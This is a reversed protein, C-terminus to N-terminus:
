NPYVNEFLFYAFIACARFYLSRSQINFKIEWPNDKPFPTLRCKWDLFKFTICRVSTIRADVPSLFKFPASNYRVFNPFTGPYNLCVRPPRASMIVTLARNVPIIEHYTDRCPYNWLARRADYIQFIRTVPRHNFFSAIISPLTSIKTRVNSARTAAWNNLLYTVPQSETVWTM